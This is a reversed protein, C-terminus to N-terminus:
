LQESTGEIAGLKKLEGAITGAIETYGAENPHVTDSKLAPKSLVDAILDPILEVGTDRAVNEYVENGSLFIGPSPVGLLLVQIGRQQAMSIMAKLNDELQVVPRKRLLDNGGHCLILLEPRYQELLAALRQRGANSEEGSIGANIVSRNILRSLQAPYSGQESAGNGATLSDGFALITASGSLPQLPPESSCAILFVLAHFFFLCKLLTTRFEITPKKMNSCDKPMM